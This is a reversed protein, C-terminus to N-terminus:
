AIRCAMAAVYRVQVLDIEMRVGTSLASSARQIEGPPKKAQPQM